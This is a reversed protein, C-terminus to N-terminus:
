LCWWSWMCYWSLLDHDNTTRCLRQVYWAKSDDDDDASLPTIIQNDFCCEEGWCGLLQDLWCDFPVSIFQLNNSDSHSLSLLFEFINQEFHAQNVALTDIDFTQLTFGSRMVDHCSQCHHHDPHCMLLMLLPLHSNLQHKRSCDMNLLKPKTEHQRENCIIEDSWGSGIYFQKWSFSIFRQGKVSMSMCIAIIWELIHM